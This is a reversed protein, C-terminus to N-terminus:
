ARQEYAAGRDRDGGVIQDLLRARLRRVHQLGRDLVDFILAAHEGHDAGVAADAQEIEGLLFPPGPKADIGFALDVTRAPGVAGMDTFDLDIGLGADGADHAVGGDVIDTDGHVRHQDGALDMTADRLADALRQILTYRVIGVALEEGRAVLVVADRAGVVNRRDHDRQVLGRGAAGIREAGLAAAFGAGDAARGADGVAHHVGEAFEADGLEVRRQRRLLDPLRDPVRLHAGLMGSDDRPARLAFGPGMVVPLLKARLQYSRTGM